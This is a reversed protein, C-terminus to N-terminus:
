PKSRGPQPPAVPEPGRLISWGDVGSRRREERVLRRLETDPEEERQLWRILNFFIAPVFTIAAAAWIVAAAVQQDAAASSSSSGVQGLHVWVGQAFGLLYALIWLIWMALAGVVARGPGTPERALLVPRDVIELWLSIGAPLCSAIEAVVVVPHRAIASIAWPTRWALAVVGYLVVFPLSRWFGAHRRRRARLGPFWSAAGAPAGLVVLPPLVVAFSVFQAAEVSEYRGVATVVPPVLAVIAVVGAAPWALARLVRM